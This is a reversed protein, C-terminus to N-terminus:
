GPGAEWPGALGQWDPPSLGTAGTTRGVPVQRFAEALIGAAAAALDPPCLVGVPTRRRVCRLFDDWVAATEDAPPVDEVARAPGDGLVRVGGRVLELSGNRGRVTEPQNAGGLTSATLVLQCGAPFDAVVTLADPVDRGDHEAFLGGAAVVRAPTRLGTAALLRTLPNVLLDVLPGGGFAAECRWQAFGARDFPRAPVDGLFRPWDVTRPTMQRALRVFRGYGRPDARFVGASLHGVHGLAPLHQRALVWNPDALAPVCAALVRGAPVAVPGLPAEVLVDKGAALADAAMRAHWHDPTAVCVVDVDPRDLLRRYDKTVRTPDAPDLGAQEATPFLGQRYRRSVPRGHAQVQYEDALGDWVDCVGVVAVDPRALLRHLHAQGRAGCGVLAVGIRDAPATTGLSLAGATRLFGRRDPASM